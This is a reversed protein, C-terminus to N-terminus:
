LRLKKGKKGKDATINGTDPCDSHCIFQPYEDDYELDHVEKEVWCRCIHSVGCVDQLGVDGVTPNEWVAINEECKKEYPQFEPGAKMCSDM